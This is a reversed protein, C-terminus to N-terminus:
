RAGAFGDCGRKLSRSPNEPGRRGAFANEFNGAEGATNGSLSSDPALRLEAWRTLISSQDPIFVGREQHRLTPCQHAGSRNFREQAVRGVTSQESGHCAQQHDTHGNPPRRRAVGLRVVIPLEKLLSDSRNEGRM